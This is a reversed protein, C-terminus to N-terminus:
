NIENNLTKSKFDKFYKKEANIRVKIAEEKTNYSGLYIKNNNIQIETYWKNRDERFRVGLIGSSNNTGLKTRNCSNESDTCPRLNKKRNDLPNGYIHDIHKSTNLIVRHLYQQKSNRVYGRADLCWKYNNVVPIDEKDILAKAVESGNKDYLVIEAYNEYEIIKNSDYKTRKLIKGYRKYQLYHKRCLTGVDTNHVRTTESTAGCIDCIRIKKM